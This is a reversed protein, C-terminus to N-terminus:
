VYDVLDVDAVNFILSFELESSEGAISYERLAQGAGANATGVDANDGAVPLNHWRYAIRTFTLGTVVALSHLQNATQAPQETDAQRARPAFEALNQRLLKASCCFPYQNVFFCLFLFFFLPM